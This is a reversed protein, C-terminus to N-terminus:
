APSEELALLGRSVLEALFSEVDAAVEHRPRGVLHAVADAVDPEGEVALLWIWAASGHLVQPTGDPLQMLFLAEPLDPEGDSVVHAVRPPIRYATM